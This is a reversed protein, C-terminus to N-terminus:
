HPPFAASQIALSTVTNFANETFVLSKFSDGSVIVTTLKECTALHDVEEQAVPLVAVSVRSRPYSVGFINCTHRSLRKYLFFAGIGLGILCATVILLICVVKSTCVSKKKGSLGKGSRSRKVTHKKKSAETKKVRKPDKHPDAVEQEYGAITM